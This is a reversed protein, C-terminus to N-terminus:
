KKKKREDIYKFAVDSINFYAEELYQIMNRKGINYPTEKLIKLLFDVNRPRRLKIKVADVSEGITWFKDFDKENKM